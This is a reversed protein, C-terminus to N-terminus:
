CVTNKVTFIVIAVMLLAAKVVLYWSMHKWEGVCPECMHSPGVLRYGAAGLLGAMYEGDSNNHSCGWTRIFVSETTPINQQVTQPSEATVRTGVDSDEELGKGKRFRRTWPPIGNFSHVTHLTTPGAPDTSLGSKIHKWVFRKSACAVEHSWARTVRHSWCVLTSTDLRVAQSACPM